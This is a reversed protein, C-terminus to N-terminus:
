EPPSPRQGPPHPLQLSSVARRAAAALGSTRDLRPRPPLARPRWASRSARPRDLGTGEGDGLLRPSICRDGRAAATTRGQEGASRARPAIRDRDGTARRRVLDVDASEEDEIIEAMM